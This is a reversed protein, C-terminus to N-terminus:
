VPRRRDRPQRLRRKLRRQQHSRDAGIAVHKSAQFCAPESGNVNESRMLGVNSLLEEKRRFRAIPRNVAFREDVARGPYRYKLVSCCIDFTTKQPREVIEAIM